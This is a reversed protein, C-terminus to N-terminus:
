NYFSQKRRVYCIDRNDLFIARDTHDLFGLVDSSIFYGGATIGIILPEDYNRRM